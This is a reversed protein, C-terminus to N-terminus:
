HKKKRQKKKSCLLDAETYGHRDSPPSFWALNDSSDKATWDEMAKFAANELYDAETEWKLTPRKGSEEDCLQSNQDLVYIYTNIREEPPGKRQEISGAAFDHTARNKADEISEDEKPLWNRTDLALSTEKM